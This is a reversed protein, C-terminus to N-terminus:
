IFRAQATQGSKMEMQSKLAVQTRKRSTGSIMRPTGLFYIASYRVADETTM